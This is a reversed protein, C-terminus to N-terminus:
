YIGHAYVFHTKQICINDPNLTHGFLFLKLIVNSRSFEAYVLFNFLDKLKDHFVVVLNESDFNRWHNGSVGIPSLLNTM